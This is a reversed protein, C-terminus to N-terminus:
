DHSYVDAFSLFPCGLLKADEERLYGVDYTEGNWRMVNTAACMTVHGDIVEDTAVLLRAPYTESLDDFVFRLSPVLRPLQGIPRWTPLSGEDSARVELIAGGCDGRHCTDPSDVYVFVEESGDGNVDFAGVRVDSLDVRGGAAPRGYVQEAYALKGGDGETWAPLDPKRLLLRYVNGDVFAFREFMAREIPVRRREVFMWDTRDNAPVDTEDSAFVFLDCRDGDCAAEHDVVWILDETGDGDFDAFAGFIDAGTVAGTKYNGSFRSSRLYDDVLLYHDGIYPLLNIEQPLNDGSATARHVGAAILVLALLRFARHFM